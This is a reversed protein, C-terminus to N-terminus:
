AVKWKDAVAPRLYRGYLTTLMRQKRKGGGIETDITTVVCEIRADLRGLHVVTGGLYNKNVYEELEVRYGMFEELLELLKANKFCLDAIEFNELNGEVKWGSLASDEIPKIRRAYLVDNESHDGLKM